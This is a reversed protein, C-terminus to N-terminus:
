RGRSSCRGEVIDTCSSSNSPTGRLSSKGSSFSRQLPYTKTGYSYFELHENVGSSAAEDFPLIRRFPFAFSRLDQLRLFERCYRTLTANYISSSLQMIVREGHSSNWTPGNGLVFGMRTPCRQFSYWSASPRLDITSKLQSITCFSFCSMSWTRSKGYLPSVRELYMKPSPFIVWFLCWKHTAM